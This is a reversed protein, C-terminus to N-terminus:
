SLFVKSTQSIFYNSKLGGKPVYYSFQAFIVEQPHHSSHSSVARWVRVPNSIRARAVERDLKLIHTLVM